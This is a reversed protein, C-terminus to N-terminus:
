TPGQGSPKRVPEGSDASPLSLKGGGGRVLDAVTGLYAVQMSEWPQRTTTAM